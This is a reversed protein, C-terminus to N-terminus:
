MMKDLLKYFLIIITEKLVCANYMYERRYM